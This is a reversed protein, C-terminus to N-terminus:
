LITYELEPFIDLISNDRKRKIEIDIGISAKSVGIFVIGKKHSLSWFDENHNL